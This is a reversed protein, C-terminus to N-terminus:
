QNIKKLELHLGVSINYKKIVSMLKGAEVFNRKVMVTTSTVVEKEILEIIGSNFKSSIGYDDANVILKNM